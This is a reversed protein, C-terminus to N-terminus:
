ILTLYLSNIWVYEHEQEYKNELLKSYVAKKFCPFYKSELEEQNLTWELNQSCPLLINPLM